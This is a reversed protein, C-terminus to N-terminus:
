GSIATNLNASGSRLMASSGTVGAAVFKTAAIALNAGIACYIALRSEAM